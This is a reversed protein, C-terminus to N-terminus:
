QPTPSHTPPPDPNGIDVYRPDVHSSSRCHVGNALLWQVNDVHTIRFILAKAPTLHAAADASM